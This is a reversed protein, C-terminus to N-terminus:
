PFHNKIMKELKEESLPKTLYDVMGVKKCHDRDSKDSNATLAIIPIEPIEKRAMKKRLIETTEYGDMVPMQCDMFIVQIPQSKHEHKMLLEIVSEGSLASFVQYGLASVMHEAVSINFPNDDVVVICGKKENQQKSLLSKKYAYPSPFRKLCASSPIVPLTQASTIQCRPILPLTLLVEGRQFVDSSNRIQFKYSSMIESLDGPREGEYYDDINSFSKTQAGEEQENHQNKNLLFSFVSGENYKSNIKIGQLLKDTCLVRALNDSINLGLGVGEKNMKEGENELKGFVKFLKGQDEGKIGIGTDEVSLRIYREDERYKEAKLTIGGKSTFKVANGVLNILIQSLRNKDTFITSPASSAIKIKLYINKKKCQLEFLAVISMMLSYLDIREPFLKLKNARISNLDLLSNVLSLLLNASNKCISLYGSTEVDYVKKEMIQIMGLMGNLPTRLEHSVTALVSDQQASAVAQNYIAHQQTIDRILVATAPQCDWSTNILNVALVRNSHTKTEESWRKYDFLCASKKYTDTKAALQNQIWTFLTLKHLLTKEDENQSSSSAQPSLDQKWKFDHFQAQITQYRDSQTIEKFEDNILCFRQLDQSIIALGQPFDHLILSKLQLFKEQSDLSSFFLRKNHNEKHIELYTKLVLWVIHFFFPAESGGFPSMLYIRTLLAVFGFVLKHSLWPIRPLILSELMSVAYASYFAGSPHTMYGQQGYYIRVSIFILFFLCFGTIIKEQHKGAIIVTKWLVGSLVTVTILSLVDSPSGSIRIRNIETM